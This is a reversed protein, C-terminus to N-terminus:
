VIGLCVNRRVKFKSEMDFRRHRKETFEYISKDVTRLLREEEKIRGFEMFTDKVM